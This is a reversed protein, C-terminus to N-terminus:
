NAVYVSTIGIIQGNAGPQKVITVYIKGASLSYSQMLIESQFTTNSTAPVPVGVQDVVTSFSQPSAPAAVALALALGLSATRLFRNM